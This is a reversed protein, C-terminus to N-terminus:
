IKTERGNVPLSVLVVGNDIIEKEETIAEKKGWSAGYRREQRWMIAAAHGQNALENLQMIAKIEANAEACAVVDILDPRATLVANLDFGRAKFAVIPPVHNEITQLISGICAPDPILPSSSASQKPSKAM